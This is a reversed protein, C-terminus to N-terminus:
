IKILKTSTKKDPMIDKLYLMEFTNKLQEKVCDSNSKFEKDFHKIFSAYDNPRILEPLKEYAIKKVEEGEYWDIGFYIATIINNVQKLPLQKLHKQVVECVKEILAIINLNVRKENDIFETMASFLNLVAGDVEVEGSGFVLINKTDEDSTSLLDLIFKFDTGIFKNSHLLEGLRKESSLEIIQELAQSEISCEMKKDENIAYHYRAADLVYDGLGKKYIKEFIDKNNNIVMPVDPTLIFGMDLSYIATLIKESENLKHNQNGHILTKLLSETLEQESVKIFKNTVSYSIKHDYGVKKFVELITNSKDRQAKTQTNGSNKENALFIYTYFNTAFILNESLKWEFVEEGQYDKFRKLIYEFTEKDCVGKDITLFKLINVLPKIEKKM